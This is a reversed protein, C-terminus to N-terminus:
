SWKVRRSRFDGFHGSLGDQGRLGGFGVNKWAYFIMIKTHKKFNEAGAASESIQFIRLHGSLGDQGSLGGFRCKLVSWIVM